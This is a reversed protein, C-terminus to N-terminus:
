KTDLLTIGQLEKLKNINQIAERRLDPHADELAQMVAKQFAQVREIDYLTKLIDHHLKLQNRIESMNALKSDQDICQELMEWAIRNIEKIQELPKIEDAITNDVLNTVIAGSTASQKLEALWRHVTSRSVGVRKAAQDVTKGNNLHYKVEEVRLFKEHQKM